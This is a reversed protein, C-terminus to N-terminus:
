KAGEPATAPRSARLREVAGIVQSPELGLSAAFDCVEPITRPWIAGNATDHSELPDDDILTLDSAWVFAHRAFQGPIPRDFEVLASNVAPATTERVYGLVGGLSVRQGVSFTAHQMAILELYNTAM